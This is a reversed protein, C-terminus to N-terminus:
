AASAPSITASPTSSCTTSSRPRADRDDASRRSAAAQLDRHDRRRAVSRPRAAPHQAAATRRAHRGDVASGRRACGLRALRDLLETTLEQNCELLVEGTKPDVVDHASVRGIIDELSVPIEKVGATEMQKISAKTIKRGEKVILENGAGRIDRSAKGGVLQDSKFVKALRNADILITDKKYFYNLLDETTMGLARLLM